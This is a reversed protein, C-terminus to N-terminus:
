LWEQGTAVTSNTQACPTVLSHSTPRWTAHCIAMWSRATFFTRPTLSFLTCSNLLSCDLVATSHDRDLTGPHSLLGMAM